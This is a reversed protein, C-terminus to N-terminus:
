ARSRSRATPWKYMRRSAWAAVAVARGRLCGEHPRARSRNFVRSLSRRDVEDVLPVNALRTHPRSRHYYLRTRTRTHLPSVTAQSQTGALGAGTSSMPNRGASPPRGACVCDDVIRCCRDPEFNAHRVRRSERSICPAPRIVQVAVIARGLTSQRDARPASSCLM